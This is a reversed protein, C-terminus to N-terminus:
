NQYQQLCKLYVQIFDERGNHKNYYFCAPNANTELVYVKGDLSKILDIGCFNVQLTKFIQKSIDQFQTTPTKQAPNKSKTFKGMKTYALLPEGKLSIVRYEVGPIYDQVVIIETKGPKFYVGLLERLQSVSEVLYVDKSLSSNNKKLVFPFEFNHLIDQSIAKISKLDAYELYQEPSLPNFYSRTNPHLISAKKYLNNQLSKDQCIRTSIYNNFPNKNHIFRLVGKNPLSIEAMVQHKDLYNLSLGARSAAQEVCVLSEKYNKPHM